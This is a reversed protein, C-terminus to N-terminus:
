KKLTIKYPLYEWARFPLKTIFTAISYALFLVTGILTEKIYSSNLLLWGAKPNYCNETETIGLGVTQNDFTFELIGERERQIGM